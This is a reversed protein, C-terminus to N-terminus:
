HSSRKLEAQILTNLMFVVSDVPVTCLHKLPEVVELESMWDTEETEAIHPSLPPHPIYAIEDSRPVAFVSM